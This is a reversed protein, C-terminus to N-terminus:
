LGFYIEFFMDQFYIKIKLFLTLYSIVDVNLLRDHKKPKSNIWHFISFPISFFPSLIVKIVHFTDIFYKVHIWKWYVVQRQNTCNQWRSQETETVFIPSLQLSTWSVIPGAGNILLCLSLSLGILYLTTKTPNTYNTIITNKKKGFMDYWKM